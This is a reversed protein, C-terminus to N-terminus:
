RASVVGQENLNSLIDFRADVVKPAWPNV